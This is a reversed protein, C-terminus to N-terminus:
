PPPGPRPARLLPSWPPTGPAAARPPTPRAGGYIFILSLASGHDPRNALTWQVAPLRLCDFQRPVIAEAAALASEDFGIETFRRRLREGLDTTLLDLGSLPALPM